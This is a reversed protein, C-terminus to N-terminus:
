HSATCSASAVEKGHASQLSDTSLAIVPLLLPPHSTVCGAFRRRGRHRSSSLSLSGSCGLGRYRGAAPSRHGPIMRYRLPHPRDLLDFRICDVTAPSIHEKCEHLHKRHARLFAVEWDHLVSPM